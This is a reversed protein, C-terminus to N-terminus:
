HNSPKSPPPEDPGIPPFDFVAPADDAPPRPLPQPDPAPQPQPQRPLPLDPARIAKLQEATLRPAPGWGCGGMGLLLLSTKCTWQTGWPTLWTYTLTTKRLIEGGLTERVDPFYAEFRTPEYPVPNTRAFPDGRAVHPSLSDPANDKVPRDPLLVRGDLGFLRPREDSPTPSPATERPEARRVTHARVPREAPVPRRLLPPPELDIAPPAAPKEDILEVHLVRDPPAHGVRAVERRMAADFLDVEIATILLALAIGAAVARRDPAPRM